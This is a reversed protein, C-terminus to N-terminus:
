DSIQSGKNDNTSKRLSQIFFLNASLRSVDRDVCSNATRENVLEELDTLQSM